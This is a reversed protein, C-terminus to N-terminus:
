SAVCDSEFIPIDRKGDYEGDLPSPQYVQIVSVNSVPRDHAAAVQRCAWDTYAEAIRDTTDDKGSRRVKQMYKRHRFTTYTAAAEDPHDYSDATGDLDAIITENGVGAEVVYWSYGESPDPAYLGWSQQDLHPSDIEDPLERDTIDAAAFVLMWVIVIVGLITLFSRAYAVSYSAIFEHDRERLSDLLRHELPPKSFPGLAAATPLRDSWSDPVRRTLTEWFPATLYPTVAAALGLPFVGVTMNVMMGTFASLYAVAAIARLRGVPVLLWLISGAMLTVWAYNLVMVLTPYNVVIDGLLITMVDNKLAIELAEGAYWKEGRHKLIANSTFVVLPQLLVAVTAMSAVSARASGRRLADISWREGLPALLSVFLVVMLLRDGGNLVTPNRAQLSVLLVFSLAGTLRTRYGLVFLIAVLGAIVFLLQQLWLEGSLAHLSLGTYQGYTAEYVAVPYVGQDTYFTTMYGARYILDALLTLGLVIRMAALSRADVEFRARVRSRVPGLWAWLQRLRMQVAYVPSRQGDM